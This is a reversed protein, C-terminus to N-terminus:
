FSFQNSFLLPFSIPVLSKSDPLFTHCLCCTALIDSIYARVIYIYIYVYIYIYIYTHTSEAHQQQTNSRHTAETHQKETNSGHTNSRRAAETHQKQTNSGHTAEAHQKQTNSRYTAEAQNPKPPSQCTQRKKRNTKHNLRARSRDLDTGMTMLLGESGYKTKSKTM